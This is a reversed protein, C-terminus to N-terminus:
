RIFYLPARGRSQCSWAIENHWRVVYPDSSVTPLKIRHVGCLLLAIFSIFFDKISYTISQPPPQITFKTAQRVLIAASRGDRLRTTFESIM